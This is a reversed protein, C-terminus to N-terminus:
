AGAQWYWHWAVHAVPNRYRLWLAAYAARTALRGAGPHAWHWCVTAVTHRSAPHAAVVHAAHAGYAAGAWTVLAHPCARYLWAQRAMSAAYPVRWWAAQWARVLPGPAAYAATPAAWTSGAAPAYRAASAAQRAAGHAGSSGQRAM